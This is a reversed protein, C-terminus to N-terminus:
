KTTTCGDSGTLSRRSSMAIAFDSGPRIKKAEEPCPLTPCRAVSSKALM